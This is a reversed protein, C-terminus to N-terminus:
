SSGRRRNRKAEDTARVKPRELTPMEPPPADPSPAVPGLPLLGETDDPRLKIEWCLRHRYHCTLYIDIDEGALHLRYGATVWTSNPPMGPLDLEQQAICEQQLTDNKSPARSADLKGFRIMIRGAIDLCLFGCQEFPRVGRRPEGELSLRICHAVFDNINNARSRDTLAIRLNPKDLELERWMDFGALYRSVLWEQHPGILELGDERTVL